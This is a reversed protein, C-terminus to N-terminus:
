KEFPNNSFANKANFVPSFLLFKGRFFSLLRTWKRNETRIDVRFLLLFVKMPFTGNYRWLAWLFFFIVTECRPSFIRTSFFDWTTFKWSHYIHIPLLELHDSIKPGLNALILCKFKLLYEFFSKLQRINKEVKWSCKQVHNLKTMRMPSQALWFFFRLKKTRALEWNTTSHWKEGSPWKGGCWQETFTRQILSPFDRPCLFNKFFDKKREKKKWAKKKSSHIPSFNSTSTAAVVSWAFICFRLLIM